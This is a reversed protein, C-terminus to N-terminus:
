VDRNVLISIMAFVFLLIVIIPIAVLFFGGSGLPLRSFSERVLTNMTGFSDWTTKLVAFGQGIFASIKDVLGSQATSIIRVNQELTKSQNELADFQNFVEYETENFSGSYSGSLSAFWQAFIAIFLGVVVLSIVMSSIKM